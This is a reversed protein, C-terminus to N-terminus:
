DDNDSGLGPIARKVVSNVKDFLKEALKGKNAKIWKWGRQLINGDAAADPDDQILIELNFEEQQAARSEVDSLFSSLAAESLMFEVLSRRGRPSSLIRSNAQALDALQRAPAQTERGLHRALKHVQWGVWFMAFAILLLALTNPTVNQINM